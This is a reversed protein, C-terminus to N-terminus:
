VEATKSCKISSPLSYPSIIMNDLNYDSIMHHNPGHPYAKFAKEGVGFKYAQFVIKSCYATSTDNIDFNIQYKVGSGEYTDLAWQAAAKGWSAKNPSYVRIWSDPWRMYTDYFDDKSKSLPENDNKTTSLIKKTSVAIGAHGPIDPVTTGNTIVIDGKALAPLGASAKASMSDYKLYFDNSNELAELFRESEEALQLM